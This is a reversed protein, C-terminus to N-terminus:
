SEFGETLIKRAISNIKNKFDRKEKESSLQQIYSRRLKITLILNLDQQSIFNKCVALDGRKKLENKENIRLLFALLIVTAPPLIAFFIFSNTSSAPDIGFDLITNWLLHLTFAIIFGIISLWIRKSLLGFVIIVAGIGSFFTHAFISFLGRYFITEFIDSDSIAYLVDEFVAFGLGIFGGIILGDMWSNISGRRFVIILGALKFLEEIFSGSVTTFAFFEFIISFLCAPFAGWGLAWLITLFKEREYRDSWWLLFFVFSANFILLLFHSFEMAEWPQSFYLILIAPLLISIWDSVRTGIPTGVNRRGNNLASM